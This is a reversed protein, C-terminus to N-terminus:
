SNGTFPYENYTNKANITFEHISSHHQNYLQEKKLNLIQKNAKVLEYSHCINVDYKLFPVKKVKESNM